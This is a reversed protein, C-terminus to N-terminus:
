CKTEEEILGLGYVMGGFQEAVEIARDHSNIVFVEQLRDSRYETDMVQNVYQSGCRVVYMKKSM